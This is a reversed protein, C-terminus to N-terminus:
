SYALLSVKIVSHM